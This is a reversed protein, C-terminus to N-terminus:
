EGADVAFYDDSLLETESDDLQAASDLARELGGGIAAIAQTAGAAPASQQESPLLELLEAAFKRMSQGLLIRSVQVSVGLDSELRNKLEIAMLSDLGFRNLPLEPNLEKGSPIRLVRRVTDTVYSEILAQRQALPAALIEARVGTDRAGKPAAGEAAQWLSEFMGTAAAPYFTSWTQFDAFPLVATRVRNSRLLHELLRVGLRDSINGMGREALRGARDPRAAMGSESWPGWDISLAPLGRARRVQALADMFENAAAYNGQGPSGLMSAASSFLVFFDLPLQETERHLNFAGHMKPWMAHAFEAATLQQALGDALVGAGHVVGRLPPLESKVYQLLRAVAQRDGVDCAAVHVHVGQAELRGIASRAAASLSASRGTLVLHEAGQKALWEATLLGLGGLGGTILYSANPVALPADPRPQVCAPIENPALASLVIKGIHKAQAMHHFAEAARSMSFLTLPLPALEGQAFLAVLERLMGGMLQPKDQVLRALDIHSFSLGRKFPLLGLQMDEYIDRKGIELFRGDDRLLALSLPIAEGALSNLVMDVGEGETVQMIESAFATSRSDFVHQVGLSRLFERKEPSGATAFIEAGVRRALAIAALGVGGTASHILVREGRALRGLHVMAYYATVFVCPIAAAQAADLQPPCIALLEAKTRVFRSFAGEAGSIMGLVTQGVRLGTVNPGLASITGACERGLEVPGDGMGPYIGLAKMVDIFNLGGHSLELEVEGPGPPMRATEFLALNELVGTATTTLRYGATELVPAAVSGASTGSNAAVPARVLQLVSREDGRLATQVDTQESALERVLARLEAARQSAEASVPGLDLNHTRLEPCEYRLVRGFAWLPAQAMEVVEGPKLQQAGATVLWLQTRACLGSHMLAQLVHAAGVTGLAQAQDLSANSADANHVADLAWLDVIGSLPPRADSAAQGILERVAAPDLPDIGLTAAGAQRARAPAARDGGIAAYALMCVAGAQELAEKLQAGVGAQRDALVLWSQGALRAAPEANSEAPQKAWALEYLAADLSDSQSAVRRVQFQQTELALMGHEDFVRVDAIVLEADPATRLQAHAWVQTGPERWRKVQGVEVPLHLVDNPTSSWARGALAQWCADLLAPHIPFAGARWSVGSPLSIKALAERENSYLEQIGRFAPGYSFGHAQAVKFHAEPEVRECRQTIAEVDLAESDSSTTDLLRARGHAHLTWQAPAELSSAACTYFRLQVVGPQELSLAVQLQTTTNAPLVLATAFKLQELVVRDDGLVQAAASLGYSVYAAGPLVPAAQVVHDALYSSRAPSLPMQWLYTRTHLASRIPEGLAGLDKAESAPDTGAHSSLDGGSPLANYEDHHWPYRPLSVFPQPEPYLAGLEVPQGLAYLQGLAKLITAREPEDRRLSGVTVGSSKAASLGQLLPGRLAPHPGIELFLGHGARILTQVAEAFRVPERQNRTWYPAVFASAELIGGTVTSCIPVEALANPRVQAIDREFAPLLPDLQPSHAAADVHLERCSVERSRLETAIQALAALDGSLVCADPSNNAAVSVLNSHRAALEQAQVLPLEVALMGGQGALDQLNKSRRCIIHAADDLSLVGAVHAAAVEGMSHGVVAAPLVNWSRWLESLAVQLAFISPQIVDIPWDQADPRKLESLVSFNAYRRLAADCRELAARFVPESEFLARGMGPWQPGHGAFVFVPGGLSSRKSGTVLAPHEDGRAYAALAESVQERTRGVVALRQQHHRRGESASYSLASLSGTQQEPKTLLESLELASAVLSRERMASLVLLEDREPLAAASAAMPPAEELVMHVDTGSIGFSSVGGRAIGSPWPQTQTALALKTANWDLAASPEECHLTKPIVRHQIALATKILGAIGSAGETHGINSKVSGLWCPTSGSRDRMVADLARLEVPDGARTGTGHAEIYQVDNPSLGACRYAERIALEQGIESPTTLLENSFGDNSAGTGRIVAYVRSGRALAKSLPMLVVVGCGDSRVLGDAHKSFAKCEGNAALMGGQAFSIAQWPDLVLNVGGVLAVSTEGLWLSQCALHAAILSASCGTDVSLSPGRLDFAFSVRGSLLCRGAGTISYVDTPKRDTYEHCEWDSSWVGMYVGTVYADLQERSLCADDLAEASVELAMRQQPDMRGAERPSMSFYDTDFGTADDLFGGNRAYLKGSIGARPDYYADIDFRSKPVERMASRESLLLEWLERPDNAGPYRCAMGVIAIPERVHAADTGQRDSEPRGQNTTKMKSGQEEISQKLAFRM